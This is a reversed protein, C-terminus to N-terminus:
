VGPLTQPPEPRTSPLQILQTKALLRELDQSDLIMLAFTETPSVRLVVRGAKLDVEKVQDFRAEDCWSGNPSLNELRALTGSVSLRLHKRSVANIQKCTARESESLALYQHLKQMSVECERSRGITVPTDYTLVFPEGAALGEVGILVPVPTGM